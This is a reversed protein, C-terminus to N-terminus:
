VANNEQKERFARCIADFFLDINFPKTFYEFAGLEKLQQERDACIESTVVIVAIDATEPDSAINRVLEDGCQAPLKLDTVVVDPRHRKIQEVAADVNKSVEVDTIGRRRLIREMFDATASHDEVILVKCQADRFPLAKMNPPTPSQPPEEFHGTTAPVEVWFTSGETEASTVGLTGGMAEVLAKSVTLGLGTGPIATDKEIDLRDFPTFLREMKEQPVGIGTDRVLLKIFGPREEQCEVYVHGGPYNYKVANTILNILVQALRDRDVEAYTNCPGGDIHISVKAENAMPRILDVARDLLPAIPSPTVKLPIVGSEIRTIELVENILQLLHEGAKLIQESCHQQEESLPDAQMLQTYGIIANLPTRLEHSIRGLFRSKASNAKQAEDRAKRVELQSQRERQRVKYEKIARTIALPLRQLNNKLVYDTAGNRLLEVALEEGLAGSLLIFPIDSNAERTMRLATLGDFGPMNYDALILDFRQKAQNAALADRFEDVRVLRKIQCDIGSSSLLESTLEADLPNDELHLISITQRDSM